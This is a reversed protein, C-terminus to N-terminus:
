KDFPPKVIKLDEFAYTSKVLRLPQVEELAVLYWNCLELDHRPSPEAEAYADEEDVAEIIRATTWVEYVFFKPM